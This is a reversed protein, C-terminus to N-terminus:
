REGGVALREGLKTEAADLRRKVTALSLGMQEAIEALQLGEVRRLVLAIRSETPLEDLLRYMARLESQVDPPASSSIVADVDVPERRALGLRLKLRKRRLRKHATRITISGIWSGFAAPETLRDLADLAQIFVDQVLDEVDPDGPMLRWALGNVMRAYRRYLAEQAWAEGARAAVVLAADSPGSGSKTRPSSAGDSTDRTERARQRVDDPVAADYRSEPGPKTM